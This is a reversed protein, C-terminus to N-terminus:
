RNMAVLTTTQRAISAVEAGFVQDLSGNMRSGRVFTTKQSVNTDASVNMLKEPSTVSFAAYDKWGQEDCVLVYHWDPSNQAAAVAKMQALQQKCTAQQAANLQDLNGGMCFRPEASATVALLVLPAVRAILKAVSM